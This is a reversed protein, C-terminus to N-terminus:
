PNSEQLLIRLRRVARSLQKTVTGVPRGVLRAVDAVPLEELYRLAVVLREHNPLRGIADLLDVNESEPPEASATGDSLVLAKSKAQRRALRLAEHRVIRLLWVGFLEPHRLQGLRRYAEVLADQTADQATHYDRLIKWATVWAAREYKRVLAAFAARDGNLVARISDENM